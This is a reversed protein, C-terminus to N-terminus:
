NWNPYRDMIFANVEEINNISHIRKLNIPYEFGMKRLLFRLIANYVRQTFMFFTKTVFKFKNTTYSYAFSYLSINSSAMSAYLYEFNVDKVMEKHGMCRLAKVASECWVTQGCWIKPLKKEWKAKADSSLFPLNDIEAYGRKMKRIGGGHMASAGSIIIPANIRYYSKATFCLAVGNAIDPSQGPFYTGIQAYINDLVSRKVIGHYLLPLRGRDVFGKYLIEKLVKNIGTKKLSFDYPKYSLTGSINGTSKSIYSPWFYSLDSPVVVDINKEEMLMVCRLIHKTVGDDDGIFCVYKGHSNNVADDSNQTVTIQKPTHNYVINSYNKLFELISSNDKTNDQLVLEIDNSKFSDILRVLSRLYVYRDKTPVVISLLPKM